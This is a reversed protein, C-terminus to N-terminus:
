GDDSNTPVFRDSSQVGPLEQIDSKHRMHPLDSTRVTAIQPRQQSPKPVYVRLM